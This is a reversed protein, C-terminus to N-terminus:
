DTDDQTRGHTGRLEQFSVYRTCLAGNNDVSSLVAGGLLAARIMDNVTQLEEFIPPTDPPRALNALPWQKDLEQIDHMTLPVPVGRADTYQGHEDQYVPCGPQTFGVLRASM